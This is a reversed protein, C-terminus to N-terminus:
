AVKKVEAVIKQAADRVQEWTWRKAPDAAPPQPAPAQHSPARNAPGQQDQARQASGHQGTAQQM